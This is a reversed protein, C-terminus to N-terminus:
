LTLKQRNIERRVLSIMKPRTLEEERKNLNYDMVIHYLTTTKAKETVQMVISNDQSVLNKFWQNIKKTDEMCLARQEITLFEQVIAKRDM